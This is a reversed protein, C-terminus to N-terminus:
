RTQNNTKNEGSGEFIIPALSSMNIVLGILEDENMKKYPNREKHIKTMLAIRDLMSLQDQDPQTNKMLTYLKGMESLSKPTTVSGTYLNEEDRQKEKLFPNNKRGNTNNGKQTGYQPTM